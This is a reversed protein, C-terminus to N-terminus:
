SQSTAPDGFLTAPCSSPLEARRHSPPVRHRFFIVSITAVVGEVIQGACHGLSRDAATPRKLEKSAGGKGGQDGRPCESTFMMMTPMIIITMMMTTPMMMTPMIMTAIAFTPLPLPEDAVPGGAVGFVRLRQAEGLFRSPGVQLMV